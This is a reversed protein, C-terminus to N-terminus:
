ISSHLQVSINLRRVAGGGERYAGNMKKKFSFERTIEENFCMSLHRELVM